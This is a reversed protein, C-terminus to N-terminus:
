DLNSIAPSKRLFECLQTNSLPPRPKEKRGANDKMIDRWLTFSERLPMGAVVRSGTYRAWQEDRVPKTIEPRHHAINMESDAQMSRSNINASGLTMFADDILMLKAHIYVEPWPKGAPTDPAVLTAMHVKLGPVEEPRVTKADKDAELKEKAAQLERQKAELPALRANIPAYRDNLGPNPMGQLLRAQDDLAKRQSLLPKMADENAEIQEDLSEMRRTRAVAPIRDARGLSELMRHTNVTGKGMGADSSNTIVFLYLPDHQAPDRGWNTQGNASAKILEAL